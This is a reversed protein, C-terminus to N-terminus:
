SMILCHEGQKNQVMIMNGCMNNMEDYNIDILKHGGQKIRTVVHDRESQSRISDTCLIIHDHLIAMVVNTHYIPNDKPDVSHWM